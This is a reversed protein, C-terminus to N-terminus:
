KSGCEFLTSNKDIYLVKALSGDSEKEFVVTIITSTLGIIAILLATTIGRRM